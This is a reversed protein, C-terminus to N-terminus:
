VGKFCQLALCALNFLREDNCHHDWCPQDMKKSCCHLVEIWDCNKWKSREQTSKTENKRKERILCGCEQCALDMMQWLLKHLAVFCPLFPSPGSQFQIHSLSERQQTICTASCQSLHQIASLHSFVSSIHLAKSTVIKQPKCASWSM